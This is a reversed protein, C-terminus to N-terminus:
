CHAGLWCLDQLSHIWCWWWTYTYALCCYCDIRRSSSYNYVIKSNPNQKKAFPLTRWFFPSKQKTIFLRIAHTGSHYLRHRNSHTVWRDAENRRWGIQKMLESGAMLRWKWRPEGFVFLVRAMRFSLSHFYTLRITPNDSNRMITSEIHWSRRRVGAM